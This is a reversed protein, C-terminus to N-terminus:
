NRTMKMCSAFAPPRSCLQVFVVQYSDACLYYFLYLKYHSLICILPPAHLPISVYINRKTTNDHILSTRGLSEISFMNPFIEFDLHLLFAQCWASVREFDVVGTILSFIVGTIMFKARYWFLFRCCLTKWPGNALHNNQSRQTKHCNQWESRKGHDCREKWM